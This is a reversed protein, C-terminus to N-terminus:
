QLRPPGNDGGTRQDWFVQSVMTYSSELQSAPCERSVALSLPVWHGVRVKGLGLSIYVEPKRETGKVTGWIQMITRVVPAASAELLCPTRHPSCQGEARTSNGHMGCCRHPESEPSLGM